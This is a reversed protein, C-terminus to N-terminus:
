IANWGAGRVVKYLNNRLQRKMAALTAPGFFGAGKDSIKEIIKADLQYTILADRTVTGFLGSVRDAPFFGRDRLLVQLKRVDSGKDGEALFSDPIDGRESLLSEIKKLALLREASRAVHKRQWSTVLKKKTLPGIRGAGSDTASGVLQHDKQFALIANFLQDDYMGNTRGKYYGLFRLTRKAKFIVEPPSGREVIMALPTADKRRKAAILYAATKELLEESSEEILFDKQFAQLSTQTVPGFLGSIADRFYGLDRLHEQLLQVSVSTEGLKPHLSLLDPEEALFPHLLALPSSFNEFTLSEGPQDSGPPYVTGKVHQVGFALARALGEEGHGVWLDLRHIGTSLENIAGGRDHVTVNGIGPLIIRTGFDYTKPAAAMGPYVATGDAGAIGQGNLIMDAAYTGKVYCCQSPLPSYYATIMFEQTYPEPQVPATVAAPPAILAAFLAAGLIRRPIRVHHKTTIKKKKQKNMSIM